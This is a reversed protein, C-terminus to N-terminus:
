GTNRRGRQAADDPDDTRGHHEHQQGHLVLADLTVQQRLSYAGSADPVEGRLARRRCPQESREASQRSKRRM